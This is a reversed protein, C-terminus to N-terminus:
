LDDRYIRFGGLTGYGSETEVYFGDPLVFGLLAYEGEDDTGYECNLDAGNTIDHIGGWKGWSETLSKRAAELTTFLPYTNDIAAAPIRATAM